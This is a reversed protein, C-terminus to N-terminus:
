LDSGEIIDSKRGADEEDFVIDKHSQARNYIHKKTNKELSFAKIIIVENYILAAILIISFLIYVISKIYVPHDKLSNNILTSLIQSVSESIIFHCPTFFYVTLHIGGVWLFASLVDGIFLLPYLKINEFNYKIQYFIGNFNRDNGFALVTITEYLLIIILSILGIVFMLHYPSDMYKNFYKKELVNYLAYLSLIVFMLIMNVWLNSNDEWILILIISIVNCVIIIILSFVQHRYIKDGLIIRSLVVYSNICFFLSMSSSTKFSIDENSSCYSDLFMPILYICALLLIYLYKERTKKSKRKMIELNIQNDFNITNCLKITTTEKLPSNKSKVENNMGIDRLELLKDTQKKDFDSSSSKKMRSTIILYILGSFLYGCYNTFFEYFPKKDESHIVRRIQYFFPYIFPIILQYNIIGFELLM